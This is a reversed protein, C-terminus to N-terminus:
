FHVKGIKLRLKRKVNSTLVTAAISLMKAEPGDVRSTVVVPSSASVLIGAARRGALHILAKVLINENEIDHVLLIDEIGAVSGSIRKNKAADLSIADYMVLPGDIVFTPSFQGRNCMTDLAGADM